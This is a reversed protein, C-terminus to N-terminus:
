SVVEFEVVRSYQINIIGADEKCFGGTVEGIETSSLFFTDVAATYHVDICPKLCASYALNYM